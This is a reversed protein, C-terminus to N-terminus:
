NGGGLSDIMEILFDKQEERMDQGFQQMYFDEVYEAPTKRVATDMSEVTGQYDTRSNRLEISLLNKYVTRLRPMVDYLPEEDTLVIYYFDDLNLHEYYKKEMLQSYNGEIKVVNRMPKLEVSTVETNGKERIQFIHVQKRNSREDVSYKLPSGCYRINEGGAKQPKHIHGLAVYDFGAFNGPLIEDLGGIRVEESGGEESNAVYQHCVLISRDQDYGSFRDVALRFANDYTQIDEDPFVARVSRPKIFPLLCVRIKGYDDELVSQDPEEGFPKAIHVGSREMLLSGSSLREASDHNGPIIYTMIKEESLRTIFRDFLNVAEVSPMDRDYVDGAILLVDVDNQKIIDIIQNLIYEQDEALSYSHLKKGIHLDSIHAFKLAKKEM